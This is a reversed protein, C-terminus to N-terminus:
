VKRDKESPIEKDFTFKSIHKGLTGEFSARWDDETLASDIRRGNATMIDSFFLSEQLKFIRNLFALDDEQYGEDVFLKMPCVDQERPM